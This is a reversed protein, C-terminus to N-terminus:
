GSTIPPPSPIVSPAPVPLATALLQSPASLAGTILGDLTSQAQHLVAPASAGPLGLHGSAESASLSSYSSAAAAAGRAPAAVTAAAPGVLPRVSSPHSSSAAVLGAVALPMVLAVAVPQLGVGFDPRRGLRKLQLLGFIAAIRAAVLSAHRRARHLLQAAAMYSLGLYSGIEGIPRYEVASQWLVQRERARLQALVAQVFSRDVV